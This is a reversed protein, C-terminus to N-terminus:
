RYCIANNSLSINMIRMSKQGSHPENERRFRYKAKWKTGGGGTETKRGEGRGGGVEGLSTESRKSLECYHLPM